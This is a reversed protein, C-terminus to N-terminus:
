GGALPPMFVVEDGDNLQRDMPAYADNIAVLTDDPTLTITYRSVLLLFLDRASANAPVHWEEQPCRTHERLQAFYKVIVVM